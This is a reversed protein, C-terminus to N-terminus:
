LSANHRLIQEAIGKENKFLLGDRYHFGKMMDEIDAVAKLIQTVSINLPIESKDNIYGEIYAMSNECPLGNRKCVLYATFEAEFERIATDLPRKDWWPGPVHHCFFHGLEHLINVYRESINSDKNVSILFFMPLVLFTEKTRYQYCFKGKGSYPQIYAGYTAAAYLNDDFAIGHYPLMRLLTDYKEKPIEDTVKFPNTAAQIIEEESQFIEPDIPETDSIDFLTGVPCHNLYILPRANPKLKRRYMNRWQASTLAYRCGPRQTQLLLANFPSQHKFRVCFDAIEKFKTSKRYEGIEQFMLDIQDKTDLVMQQYANEFLDGDFNYRDEM